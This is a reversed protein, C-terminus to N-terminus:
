LLEVYHSVGVGLQLYEGVYGGKVEFASVDGDEVNPACAAVEDLFADLRAHADRRTEEDVVKARAKEEADVISCGPATLSTAHELELRGSLVEVEDPWDGDVGTVRWRYEGPEVHIWEAVQVLGLRGLKVWYFGSKRANELTEAM